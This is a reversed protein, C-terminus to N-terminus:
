HEAEAREFRTPVDQVCKSADVQPGIVELMRNVAHPWTFV